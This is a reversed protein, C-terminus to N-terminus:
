SPLFSFPRPKFCVYKAFIKTVFTSIYRGLKCPICCTWAPAHKVYNRPAFSFLSMVIEFKECHFIYSTMPYSYIVLRNLKNNKKPDHQYNLFMYFQQESWIIKFIRYNVINYILELIINIFYMFLFKQKNSLIDKRWTEYFLVIIQWKLHHKLIFTTM